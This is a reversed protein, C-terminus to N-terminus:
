KESEYIKLKCIVSLSDAEENLLCWSVHDPTSFFVVHLLQQCKFKKEHILGLFWLDHDRIVQHKRNDDNYQHNNGDLPVANTYEGVGYVVQESLEFSIFDCLLFLQGAENQTSDLSINSLFRVADLPKGEDSLGIGKDCLPQTVDNLRYPLSNLHGPLDSLQYM